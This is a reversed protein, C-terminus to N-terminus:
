RRSRRRKKNKNKKCQLSPKQKLLQQYLSQVLLGAHDNEGNTASNFLACIIVKNCPSYMYLARYGLTEGQYFWYRGLQKSYAQIVGLGFGKSDKKDTKKIPKGTETSVLQMLQQRQNADLLTENEFLAEVWHIVDESNAVLGGAPGAWSLNNQTVNQGVLEPNTFVNFGYGQAMRNLVDGSFGPSPYFTNKLEVPKILKEAILQGFTKKYLNELIIAAVIYGTNTYFYGPKLPPQFKPTYVLNLLDAKSWFQKINQSFLYNIKPSDSYNPLGSSMNLLSRLSVAEWHPYNELYDSITKDLNLKEEAQAMLMLVATFSKTISGINFLNEKTLAPSDKEHGQNGAVYTTIEDNAKISVQIASFYEKDSFDKLHKNIIRQFSDLPKPPEIQTNEQRANDPVAASPPPKQAIGPLSLLLCFGTVLLRKM